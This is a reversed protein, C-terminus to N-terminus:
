RKSRGRVRGFPKYVALLVNTILVASSAATDKVLGLRDSAALSAGVTAAAGISKLTPVLVLLALVTGATTLALKGIVWWYRGIGWSTLLGLAPGTILALLALPVLLARGILRAAPYVTVPAAGLAGAICLLLVAADVGLLGVSVIVHLCLLLKRGKPPLQWRATGPQPHHRIGENRAAELPQVRPVHQLRQDAATGGTNEVSGQTM